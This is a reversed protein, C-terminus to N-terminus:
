FFGALDVAQFGLQAVQPPANNTWGTHWFKRWPLATSSGSEHDIM